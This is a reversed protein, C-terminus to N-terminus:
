SRLGRRFPLQVASSRAPRSTLRATARMRGIVTMVIGAVGGLAQIIEIVHQGIQEIIEASLNLGFLPGIVPLVTSLTTILAGWLTMSEAWWKEGPLSSTPQQTGPESAPATMQQDEDDTHAKASSPNQGAFAARSAEAARATASVRNLWGRGFRWFHPLERYRTRRADAYSAILDKASVRHVAAMTIPGIEGDITVGIVSQLLRAAGALGHNVSADFHMLDVGPPMDGARSPRWYRDRYIIRLDDDSIDKLTRILEARTEASLRVGRHRAWTALTVGRNTPGGPDYPDNTYGGEMALVHALARDFLPTASTDRDDAADDLQPAAATPQRFGLLRDRSFAAVSVTDAQNGGLLFVQDGREGVYFGVHGAAPNSGRSLVAIAGYSPDDLAAGWDLYSRARLSRTSEVGAKELCAGVFAACWPVADDKVGAHGARAYMEAIAQNIGPGSRERVGFASWAHSMWTPQM